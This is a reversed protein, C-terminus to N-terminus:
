MEKLPTLGLLKMGKGLTVKAIYFLLLRQNGLDSPEGKIRLRVLAKTLTNCLCFLYKTLIYPELEEYSQLVVEDFKSILIILDDVEKEKLLSPDCERTLTAGSSYELTSLRCHTYQLKIGTDGDVNFIVNWNFEYDKTRIRKFDNIIIASIGLVDASNDLEDLTVKTTFNCRQNCRMVEKAENLFDELFVATGKRTSMGRIRGFKVHKLKDAWPMKMKTLIKVLTSFHLTQGNDVVYYMADFKNKEFRDIAAAIDRTLYLTSGDSKIISVKDLESLPMVLRNVDDKILLQLKNMLSIVKNISKATYMSEWHYEDFSIDIRKYTKELEQITYDKFTQWQQSIITDEFELQRFINRACQKISPDTQALNNALVYAEYLSKIPNTQMKINDINLKELGLQILGIQTGWDGLFNIKKVKNQLFDNMNAIYNGIITSRLHGMHFPKAINPSSFEVIINKNKDLLLPPILGSYNSELITKVYKDRLVNFSIISNKITIKDFIDDSHNQIINQVEGEVNYYKSNLPLVFCYM